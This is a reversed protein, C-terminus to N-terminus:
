LLWDRIFGIGLIVTISSVFGIFEAFLIFSPRSENHYAVIRNYISM